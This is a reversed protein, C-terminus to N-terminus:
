QAVSCYGIRCVILVEHLKEYNIGTENLNIARASGYIRFGFLSFYPRRGSSDEVVKGRFPERRM